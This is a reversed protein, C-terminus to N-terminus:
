AKWKMAARHEPSPAAQTAPATAPQATTTREVECWAEYVTILLSIQQQIIEASQRCQADVLGSRLQQYFRRLNEAVRGGLDIDLSAELHGIVRIAHNIERTREEIDGRRQAALAKGLDAITQEYLLVVLRLPSAGRAASERYSRNADM